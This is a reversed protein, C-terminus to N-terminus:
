IERRRIERVAVTGAATASGCAAGHRRSLNRRGNQLSSPIPRHHMALWPSIPPIHCSFRLEVMAPWEAVRHINERMAQDSKKQSTYIRSCEDSCSGPGLIVYLASKHFVFELGSRCNRRPLCLFLQVTVSSGFIPWVSSRTRIKWLYVNRNENRCIGRANPCIRCRCDPCCLM